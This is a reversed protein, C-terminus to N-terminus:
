FKKSLIIRKITKSQFEICFLNGDQFYQTMLSVNKGEWSIWKTGVLTIRNETPEGFLITLEEIIRKYALGEYDDFFMMIDYLKNNYYGFTVSKPNKKQFEILEPKIYDYNKVGKDVDTFKLHSAHIKYDTCLKYIKFGNFKDLENTTQSYITDIGIFIFVFILLKKKM